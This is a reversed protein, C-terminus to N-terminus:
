IVETFSLTIYSCIYCTIVIHGMHQCLTYVDHLIIRYQIVSKTLVMRNICHKVDTSYSSTTKIEYLPSFEGIDQGTSLTTCLFKAFM